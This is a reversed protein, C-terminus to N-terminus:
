AVGPGPPSPPVPGAAGDLPPRAARFFARLKELDKEGPRAEVGSSVDVLDPRLRRVAEGVSAPTLGGAVALGLDRPWDTRVAELAEWPFATGTGGLRTPHWGDLLLLDAAGSWRRVGELIEEGTRVRLAKWLEWPGQARLRDLEEPSADGHFQIAGARAREAMRATEDPTTGAVVIVLPCGAAAGITRAQDPTRARPTGPVLIVGVRDAGLRAAEEADGARTLGCIKIGVQPRLSANEGGPSDPVVSDTV